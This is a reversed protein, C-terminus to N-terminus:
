DNTYMEPRTGFQDPELSNAFNDASCVLPYLPDGREQRFEGHFLGLNAFIQVFSTYKCFCSEVLDTVTASM